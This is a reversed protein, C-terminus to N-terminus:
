TRDTATVLLTYRGPQLQALAIESWYPLRAPDGAIEAPVKAPSTTLAQQNNRLVQAQMWVDPGNAGRAANYLYTQFRLISSRAFRHDVDVAVPQPASGQKADAADTRREGLFLSSMAM